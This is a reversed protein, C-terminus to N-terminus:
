GASGTELEGLANVGSGGSLRPTYPNFSKLSMAPEEFVLWDVTIVELLL